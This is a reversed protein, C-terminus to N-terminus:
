KIEESYFDVFNDLFVINFEKEIIL